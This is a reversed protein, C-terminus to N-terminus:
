FSRWNKWYDYQGQKLFVKKRAIVVDNIPRGLARNKQLYYFYADDKTSFLKVQTYSGTLYHPNKLSTRQAFYLHKINWSFIYRRKDKTKIVWMSVSSPKKMKRKM